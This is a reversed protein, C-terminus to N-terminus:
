IDGSCVAAGRGFLLPERPSTLCTFCRRIKKKRPWFEKQIGLKAAVITMIPMRWAMIRGPCANRNNEVDFDTSRSREFVFSNDRVAGAGHGRRVPAGEIKDGDGSFTKERRAVVTSPDNEM